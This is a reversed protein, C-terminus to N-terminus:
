RGHAADRRRSRPERGVGRRRRGHGAHPRADRRRRRVVGAGRDAAARGRQGAQGRRHARDAGAGGAAGTRHEDGDPGPHQLADGTQRDGWRDGRLPRGPRAPEAQQLVADREPERRRWAGHGTRHPLGRPAHRQHRDGGRDDHGGPARAGRARDAAAARRRDLTSAEGTTGAVVFGDSGHAALHHMLAVFAEEDVRLQEDFPTVIATLITGLDTGHTMPAMIGRGGGEGAHAARPAFLLRELGVM